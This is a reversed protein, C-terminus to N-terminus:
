IRHDPNGSGDGDTDLAALCIASPNQAIAANLYEVQQAIASENDPGQFSVEANLDEGAQMAGKEVAKWFQHQFGKAIVNITKKEGSAAQSSGSGSEETQAQSTSQGADSSSGGCAALSLAMVGALLATVIRKKM